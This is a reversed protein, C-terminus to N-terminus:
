EFRSAEYNTEFEKRCADSFAQLLDVSNAQIMANLEEPTKNPQTFTDTIVKTVKVANEIVPASSLIRMRSILAYLGILGSLELINHILADGYLKSSEDIFQKYIKQRREKSSQSVESKM